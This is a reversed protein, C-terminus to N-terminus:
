NVTRRRLSFCIHQFESTTVCHQVKLPMDNCIQAEIKKTVHKHGGVELRLTFAQRESAVFSSLEDRVPLSMTVYVIYIHPHDIKATRACCSFELCGNQEWYHFLRSFRSSSSFLVRVKM